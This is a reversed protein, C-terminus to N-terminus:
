SKLWEEYHKPWESPPTGPKGLAFGHGGKPYIYMTVPVHQKQCAAAMIVTNQVNAIPDNEAQVLFIPPSHSTVYNQVSWAADQATTAKKGVLVNHTSTHTFPPELTIIPYILAARDVIVPTKDLHDVPDYSIFEPRLAAMGMLHGGSSFGLVSVKKEYQRIIRIARQADQLPALAGAKWGEGPLRYTLIYATYGRAVLWEAAARGELRVAVKKYGGGGAILVGHGNPNKPTLITLTPVAINSVAGSMTLTMAGVPGGGGPPIEPWLRIIKEHYNSRAALVTRINITLGATVCGTLFQRRNM